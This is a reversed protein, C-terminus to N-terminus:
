LNNLLNKIDELLKYYKEKLKNNEQQCAKLQDALQKTLANLQEKDGENSISRDVVGRMFNIFKDTDAPNEFWYESAATHVLKKEFLYNCLKDFQHAKKIDMNNETVKLKPRLWGLVFDYTYERIHTERGIPDNQSLAKFKMVSAETVIAVHGYKGYKSGWIMVDGPQPVGQPTNPIKDYLNKPYTDWIDKAGVGGVFSGGVVDRNYYQFLDFCQSGYKGDFDWRKGNYKDIFETLKM